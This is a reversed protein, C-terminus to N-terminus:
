KELYRATPQRQRSINAGIMGTRTGAGHTDGIEDTVVDTNRDFRREVESEEVNQRVSEAEEGDQREIEAEEVDQRVAEAEEGDQQEVEAEGTTVKETQARKKRGAGGTVVSLFSLASALNPDTKRL